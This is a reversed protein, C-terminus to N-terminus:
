IACEGRILLNVSKLDKKVMFEEFVNSGITPVVEPAFPLNRKRPRNCDNGDVFFQKMKLLIDIKGQTKM